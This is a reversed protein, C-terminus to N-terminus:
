HRKNKKHRKNNKNINKNKKTQHNQKPLEKEEEDKINYFLNTVDEIHTFNKIRYLNNKAYRGFKEKASMENDAYLLVVGEGEDNSNLKYNIRYIM